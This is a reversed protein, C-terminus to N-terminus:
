AMMMGQAHAHKWLSSLKGDRPRTDSPLM